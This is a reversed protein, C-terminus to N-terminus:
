FGYRWYEKRERRLFGREEETMDVLMDFSYEEAVSQTITENQATNSENSIQEENEPLMENQKEM